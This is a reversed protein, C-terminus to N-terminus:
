GPGVSKWSGTMFGQTSSVGHETYGMQTQKQTSFVSGGTERHFSAPLNVSAPPKARMLGHGIRGPVPLQGRVFSSNVRICSSYGAGAGYHRILLRTAAKEERDRPFWSRRPLEVAMRTDSTLIRREKSTGCNSCGGHEDQERNSRAVGSSDLYDLV